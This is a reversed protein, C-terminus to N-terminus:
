AKRTRSFIADAQALTLGKIPNDKHVYVALMDISTRVGTPEYGFEKKFDAIEKSKMERSMPGFGATGAILAAPATGSGKGEVEVQIGPYYKKFGEAWFTMLNNMTDSGVSRFRGSVGEVAKYEPLKPDVKVQAPLMRTSILGALLALTAWRNNM